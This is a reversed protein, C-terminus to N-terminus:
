FEQSPRRYAGSYSGEGYAMRARERDWLIKTLLVTKPLENEPVFVSVNTNSVRYVWGKRVNYRYDVGEFRM